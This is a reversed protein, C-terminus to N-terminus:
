FYVLLSFQYVSSTTANNQRLVEHSKVRTILQDMTHMSGQKQEHDHHLPMLVNLFTREREREHSRLWKVDTTM